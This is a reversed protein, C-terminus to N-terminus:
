WMGGVWYWGGLLGWVKLRRWFIIWSRSTSYKRSSVEERGSVLSSIVLRGLPFINGVIGIWVVRVWEGCSLDGEGYISLNVLVVCYSIVVWCSYLPKHSPVSSFHILTGM